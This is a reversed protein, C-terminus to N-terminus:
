ENFVIGAIGRQHLVHERTRAVGYKLDMPGVGEQGTQVPQPAPIDIKHEEVYGERIAM